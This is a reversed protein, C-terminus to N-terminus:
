MHERIIRKVKFVLIITLLFEGLAAAISVGYVGFLLGLCINLVITLIAGISVAQSYAKQNGSAVLFQVGLFNNAVSLLMWTMLPITVLEYELYEAGFAIKIILVRFVCIIIAGLAFIPLVFKAAKRMTNTGFKFSDAFRVSIHPYLAQSIPTFFLIMIYPLKYIASYIGIASETAVVGLVTTGVASIIKSMTQSIFLYWGDKIEIIADQIKCLRIKLGYRKNALIIGIIASLIFTASYCFCYLYLNTSDRVLLFVLVVSITRSIANVITIFKMDQKGQFLWTLQFAIGIIVLFLINMCVYREFSVGTIFSTINMIIYSLLLLFLRASIIRTFLPQIDQDGQISVKRAGTFGFGYEVIVQFYTIWNLAISFIGYNTTGLVRTIFPLTVLPVVTNFVQLVFLWFGNKFWKTAFFSKIRTMM